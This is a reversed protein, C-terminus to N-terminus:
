HNVPKLSKTKSKKVRGIIFIRVPLSDRIEIMLMTLTIKYIYVYM